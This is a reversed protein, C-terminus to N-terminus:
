YVGGDRQHVETFSKLIDQYAVNRECQEILIMAVIFDIQRQNFKQISPDLKEVVSHVWERLDNQQVSQEIAYAAHFFDYILKRFDDMNSSEIYDLCDCKVKSDLSSQVIRNKLGSLDDNHVIYSLLTEKLEDKKYDFSSSFEYMSHKTDFYDVKTLVPQIWENQYVAAVGCPLKALEAIQDKNLNAARGVLERDSLDPLRMIMKTNTNRIVSLDLLGPAQDVIVFGEGYTRMEAIANALMEVSKGLLNGGESSVESSTRKLLNHAEELVTIHKSSQNMKSSQTMRYEQLKLVLVGMLLSKTEMSGVRSLDVITNQDFLVESAIENQVFILGNIGNTLSQLRTLLSGKYAGKNETDYESSDIIEKVNRAVDVFTPYMKEDYKNKSSILDWGCDVYSKEVASKLVAPMAAYMPWCVNFIEILRDLHELVHIGNPFSFPNMRLLPMLEPNTGFVHVGQDMGFVNKYEGKAPEVVLFTNGKRKAEKLLQYVTNSKGSGTSGTIFTHSALSQESLTVRSKEVHNMHFVNGLELQVDKSRELDYTVVNRGFETCELVPLGAISKKPFNLSYALEKGSLSTTATVLTPYVNFSSESEIIDPNMGFLPHQFEQLYKYIELASGNEEVDGRWVNIAANSMYSEEGQTLALYSHAVNNVVNVDEGFVYASFDWLGLATCQEYRKMQQDILELAHQISHNTFSQTIGENKGITATVNSSRAFNAGFNGGLSFGSYLGETLSVGKSVAKGLTKTVANSTTKSITKGVTDLVNQGETITNSKNKGGNISFIGKIGVGINDQSGKTKSFSQQKGNSKSTSDAVMDGDSSTIADAYSDAQSDSHTISNNQGYQNGASVGVNVGITASSGHADSETYTYNTQWSAYPSLGTYIESLRQKREEVDLIPTALLIITFEKEEDEPIIGDLLKEITQSVFKESKETPINTASAISYNHNEEMYKPIGVGSDDFEAGPFNGRLASALREKYNNVDINNNSNKLNTVALYVETKECMRRFVLAINCEENSLVEYVNILKELSNENKDTVWKTINFYRINYDANFDNKEVPVYLENIQSVYANFIEVSNAALLRNTLEVAVPDDMEPKESLYEVRKEDLKEIESPSLSAMKAVSNGAKNGAKKVYKSIIGM